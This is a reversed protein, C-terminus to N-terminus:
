KTVESPLNIGLEATHSPLFSGKSCLSKLPSIEVHIFQADALLQMKRSFDLPLLTLGKTGRHCGLSEGCGERNRPNMGSGQHPVDSAPVEEAAKASACLRSLTPTLLLARSAKGLRFTQNLETNVSDQKAKYSTVSAFM